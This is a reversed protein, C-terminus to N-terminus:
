KKPVVQVDFGDPLPIELTTIPNGCNRCRRLRKRSGGSTWTNTVRSDRCGCQSCVIALKGDESTNAELAMQALSKKPRQEDNM